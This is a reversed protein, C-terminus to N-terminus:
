WGIEHLSDMPFQELIEVLNTDEKLLEAINTIIDYDLRTQESESLRYILDIILKKDSIEDNNVIKFNYYFIYIIGKVYVHKYARRISIKGFREPAALKGRTNNPGGYRDYFKEDDGVLEKKIKELENMQKIFKDKNKPLKQSLNGCNEGFTNKDQISKFLQQIFSIYRQQKQNINYIQLYQNYKQKLNEINNSIYQNIFEEFSMLPEISNNNKVQKSNNETNSQNSEM